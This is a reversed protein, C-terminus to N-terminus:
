QKETLEYIRKEYEDPETFEESFVKVDGQFLHAYEQLMGLMDNASVLDRGIIADEPCENLDNVEYAEVGNIILTETTSWDESLSLIYVTTM